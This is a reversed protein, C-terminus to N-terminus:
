WEREEWDDRAESETGSKQGRTPRPRVDGGARQGVRGEGARNRRTVADRPERTCQGRQQVELPIFPEWELAHHCHDM